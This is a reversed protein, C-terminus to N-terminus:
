RWVVCLMTKVQTTLWDRPGFVRFVTNYVEASDHLEVMIHDSDWYRDLGKSRFGIFVNDQEGCLISLKEGPHGEIYPLFKDEMINLEREIEVRPVAYGTVYYFTPQLNM